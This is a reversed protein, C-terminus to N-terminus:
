RCTKRLPILSRHTAGRDTWPSRPWPGMRPACGPPDMGERYVKRSIYPRKAQNCPHSRTDTSSKISVGKLVCQPRAQLIPFVAPISCSWLHVPPNLLRPTEAAASGAAMVVAAMEALADAVVAAIEALADAVVADAAAPKDADATLMETKSAKLAGPVPLM